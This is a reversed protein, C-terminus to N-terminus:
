RKIYTKNGNSNIYYKGGRPGTYIKRGGSYSSKKYSTNTKKTATNGGAQDQHLHCYGNANLTKNKCRAGKQTTGSCQISTTRRATEKKVGGPVQDQHLHCYGNENTTKNRCRQGTSKAIGNCQISKSGSTNVNYMKFEWLKSNSNAELRNEVDDPLGPFFDIGTLQEVEDVSVVYNPLQKEGKQNPLVFAIMKQVDTVDYVIKYYYGPVSVHNGISGLNNNFVPGTVVYIENENRAWNRVTGELIKWIGRNFSPDQPSMNSLYFSESMAVLDTTMDGAPCLHGRDYGSGKYDVLTASGTSVNKDVRFNDTRSANGGLMFANLKYFVWNAQEHDESYSLTYYAHKVIEGQGKPLLDSVQNSSIAKTKPESNIEVLGINSVYGKYEGFEVLYNSKEADIVKLVDGNVLPTIENTMSETKYLRTGITVKYFKGVSSAVDIENILRRYEKEMLTYEEVQQLLISKEKKISDLSNRLSEIDQASCFSTFIALYLFTTLLLRKM